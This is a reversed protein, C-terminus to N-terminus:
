VAVGSVITGELFSQPSFPAYIYSGWRQEALRTEYGKQFRTTRPSLRTTLWNSFSDRSDRSPQFEFTQSHLPAFGRALSFVSFRFQQQIVLKQAYRSVSIQKWQM